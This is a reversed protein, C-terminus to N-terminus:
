NVDLVVPSHTMMMMVEEGDRKVWSFTGSDSIREYTNWTLLQELIDFVIGAFVIQGIDQGQETFTGDDSLTWVCKFGQWLQVLGVAGTEALFDGVTPLM